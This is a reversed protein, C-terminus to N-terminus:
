PKHETIVQAIALLLWTTAKDQSNYSFKKSVENLGAAVYTFILKYERAFLTVEIWMQIDEVELAIIYSDNAISEDTIECDLIPKYVDDTLEEKIWFKIISLGSREQGRIWLDYTTITHNEEAKKTRRAMEALNIRYIPLQESM